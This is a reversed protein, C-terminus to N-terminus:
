SSQYTLVERAAALINQFEQPKISAGGVLVGAIDPERLLVYANEASVSGGYLVSATGHNPFLTEMENRLARVVPLIEAISPQEATGIAWVPEYALLPLPVGRPIDVSALIRRLMRTTVAIAQGADREELLEGVCVIPRLLQKEHMLMALKKRLLEDGECFHHRRESHGILVYSCGVDLLQGMGVEGTYAGFRDPGVNQAGLAVRSRALVKHVSELACFSPLLVVQPAIDKGQLALLTTKALAVSERVGLHMKWNAVIM